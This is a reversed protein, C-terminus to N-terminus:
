LLCNQKFIHKMYSHLKQYWVFEFVKLVTIVRLIPDSPRLLCHLGLDSAVFRSTHDPEHM